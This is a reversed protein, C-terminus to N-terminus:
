KAKECAKIIFDASGFGISALNILCECDKLVNSLKIFDNLNAFFFPYKTQFCGLLM